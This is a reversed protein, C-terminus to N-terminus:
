WAAIVTGLPMPLPAAHRGVIVEAVLHHKGHNIAIITLGAPSSWTVQEGNGPGPLAAILKAPLISFRYIRMYTKTRGGILASAVVHKGDPTLV